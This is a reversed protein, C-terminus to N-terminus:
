FAVQTEDVPVYLVGVVADDNDFAVRGMIEGAELRITTVGVVTGLIKSMAKGLLTAEPKLGKPTTLFTNDFGELEGAEQLVQKWVAAIDAYPLEKRVRPHMMAMVREEDGEAVLAFFRETLEELNETSRQTMTEGTTPDTPKGFRKFAAQRTMGLSKGIEAWTAGESRLETVADQLQQHALEIAEQAQRLRDMFVTLWLNVLRDIFLQCSQKSTQQPTLAHPSLQLRM